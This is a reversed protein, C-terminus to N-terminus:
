IPTSKKFHKALKFTRGNHGHVNTKRQDEM